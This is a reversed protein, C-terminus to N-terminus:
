PSLKPLPMTPSAPLSLPPASADSNEAIQNRLPEELRHALHEAEIIQGHIEPGTHRAQARLRPVVSLTAEEPKVEFLFEIEGEFDQRHLTFLYNLWMKISAFLVVHPKVSQRLALLPLGRVPQTRNQLWHELEAALEFDESASELDGETEADRAQDILLAKQGQTWSVADLVLFASPVTVKFARGHYLVVGTIHNQRSANM